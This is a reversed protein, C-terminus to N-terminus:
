IVRKIYGEVWERRDGAWDREWVHILDIGVSKCLNTKMNHYGIPKRTGEEHWFEGNYEFALKIKPLYIDLEYPTIVARTNTIIVGDYITKIFEVLELEQRSILNACSPCGHNMLHDNPRQKFKGHVPCIIIIKNKNDTYSVKSYDYKDGHVQKAKAIFNDCTDRTKDVGCLNCGYGKLHLYPLQKFKGHVPCIITVTNVANKYEVLSYDYRDGHIDKSQQIFQETTPTRDACKKCGNGRLHRNPTQKFKGHVPCIIIVNTKNNIYEVLSYDYRDSHIDKSREIFEETTLRRSM